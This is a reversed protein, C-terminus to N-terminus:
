PPTNLIAMMAVLTKACKQDPCLKPVRRGLVLNKADWAIMPLRTSTRKRGEGERKGKRREYFLHQIRVLFFSLTWASGINLKSFEQASLNLFWQGPPIPLRSDLKPLLCKQTLQIGNVTLQIGPELCLLGWSTEPTPVSARPTPSQWWIDIVQWRSQAALQLVKGSPVRGRVEETKIGRIKGVVGGFANTAGHPLPFQM